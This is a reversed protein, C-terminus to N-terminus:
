FDQPAGDGFVAMMKQDFEFVYQQIKTAALGPIRKLFKLREEFAEEIADDTATMPDPHNFMYEGYKVLSAAANYRNLLENVGTSFDPKEMELAHQTRIMDQYIRTRVTVLIPGIKFDESYFGKTLMKEMISRAEKLTVGIAKLREEYLQEKSKGEDEKNKIMEELLEVTKAVVEKTEEQKSPLTTGRPANDKPGMFGTGEGILPMGSKTAGPM